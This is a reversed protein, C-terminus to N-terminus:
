TLAWKYARMAHATVIRGTRVILLFSGFRPELEIGLPHHPEDVSSPHKETNIWRCGPRRDNPQCILGTKWTECCRLERVPSSASIGNKPHPRTRDLPSAEDTIIKATSRRRPRRSRTM